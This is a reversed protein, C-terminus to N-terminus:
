GQAPRAATKRSRAGSRSRDNPKAPRDENPVENSASIINRDITHASRAGVGNEIVSQAKRLRSLRMRIASPALQDSILGATAFGWFLIFKGTTEGTVSAYTTTARRRTAAEYVNILAILLATTAQGEANVPNCAERALEIDKCIARASTALRDAAEVPDGCIPDAIAISMLGTVLQARNGRGDILNALHRAADAITDLHKFSQRTREAHDRGSMASRYGCVARAIKRSIWSADVSLNGGLAELVSLLHPGSLEPEGFIADFEAEDFQQTM